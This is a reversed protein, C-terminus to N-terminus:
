HIELIFQVKCKGCNQLDNPPAVFMELKQQKSAVKNLDYVSISKESDKLSSPVPKKILQPLNQFENSSEM